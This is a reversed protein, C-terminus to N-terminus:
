SSYADNLEDELEQKLDLAKIREGPSLPKQLKKHLWTLRSKLYGIRRNRQVAPSLLSKYFAKSMEARREPTSFTKKLKESHNRAWDSDKRLAAAGIKARATKQEPSQKQLGKRIM